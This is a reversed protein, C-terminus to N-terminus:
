KENTVKFPHLNPKANGNKTSTQGGKRADQIPPNEKGAYGYAQPPFIAQIADRSQDKNVHQSIM